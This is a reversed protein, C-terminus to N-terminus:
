EPNPIKIGKELLTARELIAHRRRAVVKSEQWEMEM